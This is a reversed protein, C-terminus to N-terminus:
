DGETQAGCTGWDAEAESEEDIFHSFCAQQHVMLCPWVQDRYFSFILGLSSLPHPFNM